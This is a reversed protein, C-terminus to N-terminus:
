PAAERSRCVGSPRLACPDELASRPHSGSALQDAHPPTWETRPRQPYRDPLEPGRPPALCQDALADSSAM